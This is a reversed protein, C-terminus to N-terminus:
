HRSVVTVPCSGPSARLSFAPPAPRWRATLLNRTGERWMRDNRPGLAAVQTADDPLDTLQQMVMGPHFQKVAASLAEADYVDCLVPEAGFAQLQDLKAASRTMGAVDHGAAVLLAGAAPWDRRQSGAVFIRM